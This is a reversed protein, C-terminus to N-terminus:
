GPVALDAHPRPLPRLASRGPTAGRVAIIKTSAITAACVFEATDGVITKCGSCQLVVNPLPVLSLSDTPEMGIHAPPDKAFPTRRTPPRSEVDLAM